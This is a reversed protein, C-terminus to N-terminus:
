DTPSKKNSDLQAPKARSKAAVWLALGGFIFITWFAIDFAFYVWDRYLGFEGYGYQWAVPLGHNSYTNAEFVKDPEYQYPIDRTKDPAPSFYTLMFAAVLSLVFYTTLTTARKTM